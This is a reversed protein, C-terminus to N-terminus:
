SIATGSTAQPWGDYDPLSALDQRAYEGIAQWLDPHRHRLEAVSAATMRHVLVRKPDAVRCFHTINGPGCHEIAQRDDRFRIDSARWFHLVHTGGINAVCSVFPIENRGCHTIAGRIADFFEM